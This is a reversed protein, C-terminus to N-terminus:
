EEVYISESRLHDSTGRLEKWLCKALRAKSESKLEQFGSLPKTATYTVIMNMILEDDSESRIILLARTFKM